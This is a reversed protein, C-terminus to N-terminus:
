GGVFAVPAHSRDSLRNVTGVAGAVAGNPFHHDCRPRVRVGFAPKETERIRAPAKYDNESGPRLQEVVGVGGLDYCNLWWAASGADVPCSDFIQVNEDLSQQRFHKIQQIPRSGEKAVAQSPEGHEPRQRVDASLTRLKDLVTKCAPNPWRM